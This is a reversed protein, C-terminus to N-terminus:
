EFSGRSQFVSCCGGSTDWTVWNRPWHCRWESQIIRPVFTVHTGFQVPILFSFNEFVPGKWMRSFRICTQPTEQIEGGGPDGFHSGFCCWIAPVSVASSWSEDTTKKVKALSFRTTWRTLFPPLPGQACFLYLQTNSSLNKTFTNEQRVYILTSYQLVVRYIQVVKIKWLQLTVLRPVM